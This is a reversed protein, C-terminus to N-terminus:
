WIVASPLRRSCSGPPPRVRRPSLANAVLRDRTVAAEEVCDVGVRLAEEAPLHQGVTTTGTPWELAHGLRDGPQGGASHSRPVLGSVRYGHPELWEMARAEARSLPQLTSGLPWSPLSTLVKGCRPRQLAPNRRGPTAGVVGDTAGVARQRRVKPSHKLGIFTGRDRRRSRTRARLRPPMLWGTPPM